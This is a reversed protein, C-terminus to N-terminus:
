QGQELQELPLDPLVATDKMDQTALTEYLEAVARELKFIRRELAWIQARQDPPIVQRDETKTLQDELDDEAMAEEEREVAELKEEQEREIRFHLDIFDVLQEAGDIEYRAVTRESVGLIKATIARRQTVNTKRKFHSTRGRASATWSEYGLANGIATRQPSEPMYDLADAIDQDANPHYDTGPHPNYPGWLLDHDDVSLLEALLEQQYKKSDYGIGRGRTLRRILEAREDRMAM